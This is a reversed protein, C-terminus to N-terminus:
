PAFPSTTRLRMGEAVSTSCARLRDGGETWIWCDQCAGMLCFGARPLNRVETRRLAPRELLLATLLTDGFRGSAPAGDITFRVTPRDREAIRVFLGEHTM